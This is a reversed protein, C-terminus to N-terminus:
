DFVPFNNSSGFISYARIITAVRNMAPRLSAKDYMSKTRANVNAGAELLLKVVEGHDNLSAVHLGTFDDKVKKNVEAGADLLLKVIEKHGKLSALFLPTVQNGIMVNADAGAEFLRRVEDIDGLTVAETLANISETSTKVQEQAILLICCIATSFIVLWAIRLYKSV